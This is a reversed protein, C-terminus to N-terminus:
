LNINKRRVSFALYAKNRQFAEWTTGALGFVFFDREIEALNNAIGMQYLRTRVETSGKAIVVADPYYNIFVYLTSAVTALVKRSDNNNTVVLDDILGTVIDTDGFGLNFLNDDVNTYRVTKKINGTPGISEFEFTLFDQSSKFQYLNDLM